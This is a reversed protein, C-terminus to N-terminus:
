AFDKKELILASAFILGGGWALASLGALNIQEWPIDSSYVFISRWNYWEFNPFIYIVVQGLYYFALSESVESFHKLSNLWHGILFFGIAFTVVMVPRTFCSLMITMALLICSELFIGYVGILFRIDIEVGIRWFIFSLVVSLGFIMTLIVLLLGAYKGAVFQAKTIPRVLITFITKKEIERSVLTCGVFISMIMVSLHIATFGFNASIRTQEDYSLKGLALSIGILLISFVLLGYLIRDRMIERYTNAAIIFIIRM